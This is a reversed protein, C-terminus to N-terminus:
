SLTQGAHRCPRNSRMRPDLIKIALEVDLIKHYAKYVYGFGGEGVMEKLVCNGIEQGIKPLSKFTGTLDVKQTTQDNSVFASTDKTPNEYM